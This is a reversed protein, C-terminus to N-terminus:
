VEDSRDVREHRPSADKELIKILYIVPEPGNGLDLTVTRADHFGLRRYLALARPNSVAAGIEVRPLRWLRVRDVLYGILATGIGQGRVEPRVILDSIETIRPWLTLQGYGLIGTDNLAVIGLGNGRRAMTESRQLMEQVAELSREPWCVQQLTDADSVTVPRISFPFVPAECYESSILM